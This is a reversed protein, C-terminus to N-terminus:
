LLRHALLNSTISITLCLLKMRAVCTREERGKERTRGGRRKIGLFSSLSVKTKEGVFVKFQSEDNRRREEKEETKILVRSNVNKM